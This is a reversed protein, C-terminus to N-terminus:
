ISRLRVTFRGPSTGLWCLSSGDQWLSLAGDDVTASWPNPSAVAVCRTQGVPTPPPTVIMPAPAFLLRVLAMGDIVGCGTQDDCGTAGIDRTGARLLAVISDGSVSPLRQRILAVVGAVHPTAMSTGTKSATGQNPMTSVIGEGPAVVDLQTGFNSFSSRGTGSGNVSGVTVSAPYGGPFQEPTVGANGAAAVFVVGADRAQQITNAYSQSFSTGGISASIVGVGRDLLAAIGALQTSQWSRCGGSIQEFVRVTIATASPAAGWGDSVASGTVHTGHDRCGPEERWLTTDPDAPAGFLGGESAVVNLGRVRGGYTAHTPDIGSDIIGVTVGEGTLGRNWISDVRILALHWPAVASPDDARVAASPSPEPTPPSDEMRDYDVAVVGPVRRLSDSWSWACRVAIVPPAWLARRCQWRTLSAALPATDAGQRMVLSYRLPPLPLPAVQRADMGCPTALALIALMVGRFM